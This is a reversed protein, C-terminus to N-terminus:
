SNLSQVIAKGNCFVNFVRGHPHKGGATRIRM